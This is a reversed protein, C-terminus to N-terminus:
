ATATDAATTIRFDVMRDAGEQFTKVGWLVDTVYDTSLAGSVGKVTTELDSQFVTDINGMQGCPCHLVMDSVNDGSATFTEALTIRGKISTLAITTTGDVAAILQIGSADTFKLADATALAIGGATTATPANILAVLNDVSTAADGIDVQGATSPVAVFEFTVGDIVVTDTATPATAINVSGTWTLAQASEYVRFGAYERNFGFGMKQLKDGLMTERAGQSNQILQTADADLVAYWPKSQEVGAARLTKHAEGLGDYITTKTYEAATTAYTANSYQGLVSRDIYQNLRWAGDDIFENIVSPARLVQKMQDKTINIASAKWKNVTLTESTASMAAATYTATNITLDSVVARSLHPRDVTKGNVLSAEEKNSTIVRSINRARLNM